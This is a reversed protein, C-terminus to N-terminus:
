LLQLKQRTEQAESMIRDMIEQVSPADQILGIVQGCALVGANINGTEMLEKGRQGSVLPLVEELPIGQTELQAVKKAVENKIVRITNRHSRMILMTDNENLQLLHEKVQDDMLAERSLMFRTGMLVADAGLALAAVLGRGDGFGGAAIVPIDLTDAAKPLLVMSSVDEEGPHGGCECGDIIVADCGIKQAKLAFRVAVVKHMVKFGHKKFKDMYPEPNRGATEVINIGEEVMAELYSDVDLPRIAPFLPLNVGLPKDTLSKAKRLEQQFMERTNFTVSSIIGLGGANSVAAALEATSLWMMGGKIIPYKIGLLETITTQFM